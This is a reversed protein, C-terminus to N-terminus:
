YTYPNSTYIHKRYIYKWRFGGATKNFDRAARSLTTSEIKLSRSAEILSPWERIFDGQITYQAVIKSATKNIKYIPPMVLPKFEYKWIYGGSTKIVGTACASIGNKRVGCELSASIVTEWKKLFVGNLDYQYVSKHNPNLVGKKKESQIKNAEPSPIYHEGGSTLNLGNEISNFEKIFFKEMADADEKIGVWLIDLIWMHTKLYKDVKLEGYKKLPIHKKHRLQLNNTQGVYILDKGSCNFVIYYYVCYLGNLDINPIEYM